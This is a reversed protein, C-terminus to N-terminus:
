QQTEDGPTRGCLCFWIIYVYWPFGRKRWKQPHNWGYIPPEFGENKMTKPNLPLIYIYVTHKPMCSIAIIWDDQFPVHNWWRENGCWWAAMETAEKSPLRSPYCLSLHASRQVVPAMGDTSEAIRQGLLPAMELIIGDLNKTVEPPLHFISSFPM